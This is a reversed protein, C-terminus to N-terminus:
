SAANVDVNLMTIVWIQNSKMVDIFYDISKM